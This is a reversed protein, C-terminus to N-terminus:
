SRNQSAVFDGWHERCNIFNAIFTAMENLGVTDGEFHQYASDLKISIQFINQNTSCKRMYLYIKIYKTYLIVSFGKCRTFYATGEVGVRFTTEQGWWMTSFLGSEWSSRLLTLRGSILM